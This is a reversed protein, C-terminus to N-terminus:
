VFGGRKQPYNRVGLTVGMIEGEYSHGSVIIQESQNLAQVAGQFSHTLKYKGLCITNDPFVHPHRYKGDGSGMISPKSYYNGDKMKVYLTCGTFDYSAGKFKITYPLIEKCLYIVGDMYLPYIRNNYLMEMNKKQLVMEALGLFSKIKAVYQEEYELALLKRIEDLMKETTTLANMEYVMDDFIMLINDKFEVNKKDEVFQKLTTVPKAVYIFNRSIFLYNSNLIDIVTMGMM